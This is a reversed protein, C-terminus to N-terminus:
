SYVLTSLYEEAFMENAIELLQEATLAEIRKFVEGPGEFKGYHLFAKGMDLANNEFNDSAVGIQGIIQKKAATLQAGTLKNDRLKKLEKHVLRICHDVDETDTGFYICFVGTDTYSTVNSEVNYVLGNKERLSVNLRNNMGPGGLLNNLLFLPLRKEDHMSYARGGILVHAQHTDKHIQRSVPLLEGPATRNRAAMPFAIDSLTSEAMQVIKKFPIRGMSFFVM